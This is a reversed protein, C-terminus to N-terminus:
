PVNSTCDRVEAREEERALEAAAIEEAGQLSAEALQRDEDYV